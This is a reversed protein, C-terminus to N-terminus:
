ARPKAVSSSRRPVRLPLHRISSLPPICRVEVSVSSWAAGPFQLPQQCASHYNTPEFPMTGSLLVYQSLLHATHSLWPSIAMTLVTHHRLALVACPLIPREHSSCATGAPRTLLAPVTPTRPDVLPELRRTRVSLVGLGWLDVSSAAPCSGARQEPAAYGRSGQPAASAGSVGVRRACGFDSLKTGGGGGSVLLVNEPKVDCHAIHMGHMHELASLLQSIWRATDRERLEDLRTIM